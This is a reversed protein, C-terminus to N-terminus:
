PTQVNLYKDILPNGTPQVRVVSDVPKNESPKKFRALQNDISELRAKYNPSELYGFEKAKDQLMRKQELLAGRFVASVYKEAQEKKAVTTKGTFFSTAGSILRDDLGGSKAWRNVDNASLSGTEGAM